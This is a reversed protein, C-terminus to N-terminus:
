KEKEKKEEKLAQAAGGIVACGCTAVGTTAVAGGIIATSGGTVVAGCGVAVTSDAAAFASGAAVTGGIAAAVARGTAVAGGAAAATAVAGGAAAAAVTGDTGGGAAAATVAGAASAAAAGGTAAVAGVAATGGKAVAVTGGTAAAAGGLAPVSGGFVIAGGKFAIAGGKFVVAGGKSVAAGAGFAVTGGCYAAIGLGAGVLTVGCVALIIYKKYKRWFQSFGSPQPKNELQSRLKNMEEQTELKIKAETERKINEIEEQREQTIRAEIERKINEIEEQKLEQERQKQEEEEQKMREEEERKLRAAEEFMENSYCSGGNEEVMRDIKELLESVQERNNKDRNNFVHYGGGCKEVLKRLSESENIFDEVHEHEDLQDGYTFLIIMYKAVEKGFLMKIKQIIEEEQETFRDSIKLVLLFAHPGPSSLYISRGIETDLEEHPVSTDFLGPTDVVTVNRGKIHETCAETKRTVTKMRLKSLFRKEGLITNGTAGKGSGIQGLLVIRRDSNTSSNSSQKDKEQMMRVEDERKFRAAEEFMENSYCSGGNKEVMRDIKELLESVQERNNNDRNNFVHYGGGCKEVLKRLSENESIFDEVNNGDEELLDEHTFLIITYKVVEDGFLLEIKQIVEQEHETFRINVPLVLLFAHPGPSSLYISKGIETVLEENLVSTDFFGPTDIVTLNRGGVRGSQAESERTVSKSGHKSEFCKDGLITNGTASKGFGTKGLLVITRDSSTSNETTKVMLNKVQESSNRIKNNFVHYRNEYKQVLKKLYHTQNIFEEITQNQKELEDGRTFLMCTKKLRDEGLLNEIQEVTRREEATFKGIRIVLLYLCSESECSNLVNQCKQRIQEDSLETNCFGPTDHVAVPIKLVTGRKKQVDQTVSTLSKTSTFARQGLITNGAASKGSHTKGLLVFSLLTKTDM